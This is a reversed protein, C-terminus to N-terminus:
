WQESAGVRKHDADIAAYGGQPVGVEQYPSQCDRQLDVFALDPSASKKVVDHPQRPFSDICQPRALHNQLATSVPPPRRAKTAQLTVLLPPPGNTRKQQQHKIQGDLDPFNGLQVFIDYDDILLDETNIQPMPLNGNTPTSGM